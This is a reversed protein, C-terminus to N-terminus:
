ARVPRLRAAVASALRMGVNPYVDFPGSFDVERGNKGALQSKFQYGGPNRAPSIGNLNYYKCGRQKLLEIVRWQVLYSGYSKVGRDSTARFLDVATSGLASFLAGAVVAGQMRCLVVTMKEDPALGQQARVHVDIDAPRSFRKRNLMEGYIAGLELFLGDEHGETIELGNQRTRNLHKRWKQHCGRELEDLPPALDMLITRYQTLSRKLEYGEERLIEGYRGAEQAELAPLLRVVLGRRIVYENRISRVVQRFTEPDEESHRLRWLPGWRAYALGCRANPLGILRIQLAGVVRDDRKLVFHSLNSQRTRALGDPWSQFINADAFERVTKTWQEEDVSDVEAVFGEALSRKRESNLLGKARGRSPGM